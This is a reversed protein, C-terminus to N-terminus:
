QMGKEIVSILEQVSAVKVGSKRPPPESVNLIKTHTKAEVNLDALTLVHIPKQKAKMINPLTAYRPTNLRLDVSVVAPLPLSLTELGGDVERTTQCHNNEIELKSVFTSQPWGLLASIMQAVQNCDNDIAQKGLLILQPKEIERVAKLIKAITLPEPSEDTNVHIGRDAGLALGHRITEQTMQPGVSVLIIETALGQEKLRIAEEIAIEDFPNISMKAASTDVGSGDAKLRIKVNYDVVRKIGVLIKM